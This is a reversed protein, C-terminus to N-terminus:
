VFGGNVRIVQGNVWEAQDSVLFGVVPAVDKTEGIRGLSSREEVKKMFEEDKGALFLETRVPGPAVCNATIGTGKLEKALIRTMAEVAGNTATYAAYGPLLTGMISSSFTVIRGGGGRVMRNAAERLLLFTGRVNVNFMADFDDLTTDALAPYKSNLIGACAVLIHPPSGFAQEAKDFLSRAADPHSVDGRAAVARLTPSNENLEAALADALASNSAYNLVLRAGLAALHVAIERGIGRSAGTVVAVRGNLPMSVSSAAASSSSSCSHRQQQLSNPKSAM